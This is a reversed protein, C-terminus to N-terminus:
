PPPPALARDIWALVEPIVTGLALHGAGEVRIFTKPENALAFLRDGFRIPITGDATGHVALLPAAVAGIKRDSRFPDRMLLRVPFMWFRAAAVDATSSYPSDLVVAGVKRRAALDIAVGTGLSEGMAVIRGPPVGLALARAYTAEGDRLLGQETPSGTSGPYGRYEVALLGDGTSTLAGFRAGRDALGNANGHFYLILPRGPAPAVYWALLTEGDEAALALVEARPLGVLAPAVVQAYPFYLIRRQGLALALLAALYIAVGSALIIV